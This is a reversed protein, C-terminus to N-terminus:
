HARRAARRAAAAAELKALMAEAREEDEDGYHGPDIPSSMWSTFRLLRTTTEYIDVVRSSPETM